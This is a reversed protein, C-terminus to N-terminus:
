AAGRIVSSQFIQSSGGVGIVGGEYVQGTVTNSTVVASDDDTYKLRYGYLVDTTTATSDDLTLSTAGSVDSFSGGDENREWQYTYPTAGGTADTAEVSIGGPGSAVFSATGATLPQPVNNTVSAGSIDALKNSAGDTIDDSTSADDYSVTVTEGYAIAGTLSLTLTTGSIAWSLVTASTGSLTFGGTGSTPLCGSESLTATIEDGDTNTAWGSATPLVLDQTSNNTVAFDTITALANPTDALDEVDGASYDLTITETSGVTRSLSYVYTTTGDGSSYTATLAGGTADLTFGANGTVAEDFVLTLEDGDTNITASDLEPAIEDGFDGEVAGITVSDYGADQYDSNTPVFGAFLYARLNAVTYATNYTGGFGSRKAFETALNDLTGAGGLSSDWTASTRNDPDAWGPDGTVDGYLANPHATTGNDFNTSGDKDYATTNGHTGNHHVGASQYDSVFTIGTHSRIGKDFGVVLNNKVLDNTSLNGTEGCYIGSGVATGRHYVTNHDIVPSTAGSSGKYMFIGMDSAADTTVVINRQITPTGQSIFIAGQRLNSDQGALFYSDEITPSGTGGCQLRACRESVGRKILLTGNATNLSGSALFGYTSANLTTKRNLVVQEDVVIAPTSGVNTGTDMGAREVTNDKAVVVNRAASFNAPRYLSSFMAGSATAGTETNDTITWNAATAIASQITHAANSGPGRCGDFHNFTITTTGANGGAPQHMARYYDEVKCYSLVGTNGTDYRWYIGYWGDTGTGLHKLNCHQIDFNAGVFSGGDGWNHRIYFPSSDDATTVTCKASSTGVLELTGRIIYFGFMTADTDSPATASGTGIPDTGTSGFAVTRAVGSTPTDFKLKASAGNVQIRLVGSIDQDITITHNGIKVVDGSGPVGTENWTTQGSSSWNGTAKSTFIAM